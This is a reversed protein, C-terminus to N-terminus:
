RYVGVKKLTEDSKIKGKTALEVLYESQTPVVDPWRRISVEHMRLARATEPLGGFFELVDKKLM